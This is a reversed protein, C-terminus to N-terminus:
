LDSSTPAPRVVGTLSGLRDVELTVVDGPM